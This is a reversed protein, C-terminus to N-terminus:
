KAYRNWWNMYPKCCNTKFGATGEAAGCPQIDAWWKHYDGLNSFVQIGLDNLFKVDKKTYAGANLGVEYLDYEKISAFTEETLFRINAGLKLGEPKGHVACYTQIERNYAEVGSFLICRGATGTKEFLTLLEEMMSAEKYEIEAIFDEAQEKLWLLFEELRMVRETRPDEECAARYTDAYEQSLMRYFDEETQAAKSIRKMHCVTERPTETQNWPYYYWQEKEFGRRPFHNLLHGGYPLRICSLEEWTLESIRKGVPCDQLGAMVRTLTEDHFVVIERDRTMRIDIEIGEAKGNVAAKFASLTNEPAVSWDGRHAIRKPGQYNNKRDHM